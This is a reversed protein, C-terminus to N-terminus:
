SLQLKTVFDGVDRALRGIVHARYSTWFFFFFSFFFLAPLVHIHCKPNIAVLKDIFERFLGASNSITIGSYRNYIMESDGDNRRKFYEHASYWSTWTMALLSMHMECGASLRTGWGRKGVARRGSMEIEGDNDEGGVSAMSTLGALIGVSKSAPEVSVTRMPPPGPCTQLLAGVTLSAPVVSNTNVEASTEIDSDSLQSFLAKM